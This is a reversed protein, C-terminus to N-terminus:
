RTETENSADDNVRDLLQIIILLFKLLARAEERIGYIKSCTHVRHLLGM